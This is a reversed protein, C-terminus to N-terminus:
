PEFRPYIPALKLSCGIAGTTAGSGYIRSDSCAHTLSRISVFSAIRFAISCRRSNSIRFDVGGIEGHSGAPAFHRLLLLGDFIEEAHPALRRFLFSAESRANSDKLAFAGRYAAPSQRRGAQPSPPVPSLGATVWVLKWARIENGSILPTRLM